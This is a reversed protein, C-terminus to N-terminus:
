APPGKAGDDPAQGSLLTAIWRSAPFEACITLGAIAIPVGILTGPLGWLFSWFFVSFVVFFPSITLTKATFLPELYSGILFQVVTLAAMVLAAMEWSGTQAFAFLTPLATAILPGLFPIYNLAFTMVGWATALELGVTLAFLWVIIGTLLSALTRVLMFRRIKKATKVGAAILRQGNPGNGDPGEGIAQLNKAFAGGELLGMALFILILLSFGILGNLRLAIQQFLRLLWVVNFREAVISAIFIDHQELWLASSAYLTQLRDFNATVWQAIHGGGWAVVSSLTVIVVLTVGVTAVLALGKPLLKELAKQFPWVIAMAFLSFAVPVFVASAFYLAAIAIAALLAAAAARILGNEM